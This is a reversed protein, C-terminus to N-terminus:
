KYQQMTSHLVAYESTSRIVEYPDINHNAGYKQGAESQGSKSYRFYALIRRLAVEYICLSRPPPRQKARAKEGQMYVLFTAFAQTIESGAVYM